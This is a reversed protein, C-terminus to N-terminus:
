TARRRPKPEPAAVAVDELATRLDSTLVHAYRQSSQISAHGLLGQVAKLNGTRKLITSGAHHRAGHIRRGGAVGARDAALSIRYELQNYTLAVLHKGKRTHWVTDLAKPKNAQARGVLAALQRAHDLRLPVHLIVDRKRGKQLTLSPEVPDLNLKQDISFQLEGLRLGYTLLM